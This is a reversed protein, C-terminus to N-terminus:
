HVEEYNGQNASDEKNNEMFIELVPEVLARGEQPTLIALNHPEFLILDFVESHLLAVAKELSVPTKILVGNRVLLYIVRYDGDIHLVKIPNM